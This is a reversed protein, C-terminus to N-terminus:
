LYPDQKRLEVLICARHIVDLEAQHSVHTNFAVSHCDRVQRMYAGVLSEGIDM